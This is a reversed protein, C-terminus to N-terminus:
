KRTMLTGCKSCKIKNCVQGRVHVQEYGCKPCVCTGVPGANQNGRGFGRGAGRGQGLPGTGDGGPMKYEGGHIKIAKGNVLADTIKERARVLTRQFTSQHVQMKKAADVQSLKEINSLRLTELEDITLEVEELQTLPVARPKFYTAGPEFNVLKVKRPRVM